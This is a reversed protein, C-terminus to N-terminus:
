VNGVLNDWDTEVALFDLIMFARIINEISGYDLSEGHLIMHRNFTIPKEPPKGRTSKFLIEEFYDMALFVIDDIVSDEKKNKRLERGLAKRWHKPLPDPLYAKSLGEIQVILTPIIVNGTAHEDHGNTLASLCDRIIEIRAKFLPKDAWSGVLDRLNEYENDKFYDVFLRNIQKQKLEEDETSEEVNVIEILLSPQLSPCVFWDYKKLLPLSKGMAIYFKALTAIFPYLGSKFQLVQQAIREQLPAMIGAMQSALAQLQNQVPSAATPLANLAKRFQGQLYTDIAEQFNKYTEGDDTEQFYEHIGQHAELFSKTLGRLEVDSMVELEPISLQPSILQRHLITIVYDRPNKNIAAYKLLSFSMNQMGRFRLEGLSNVSIRIDDAESLARRGRYVYLL